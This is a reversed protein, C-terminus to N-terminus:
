PSKPVAQGAVVTAAAHQPATPEAGGEVREAGGSVVADHAAAAFLDEVVAKDRAEASGARVGHAEGEVAHHVATGGPTQVTQAKTLLKIAGSAGDVAGPTTGAGTLAKAETPAAVSQDAPTPSHQELPQTAAPAPSCGSAVTADADSGTKAVLQVEVISTGGPEAQQMAALKAKDFPAADGRDSTQRTRKDADDAHVGSSATGNGAAPSGEIAPLTAEAGLTPTVPKPDDRLQASEEAPRQVPTTVAQDTGEAALAAGATGSASQQLDRTDKSCVLKSQAVGQGKLGGDPAADELAGVKRQTPEPMDMCRLKKPKKPKDAQETSSLGPPLLATMAPVAAHLPSAARAATSGAQTSSPGMHQMAPAPALGEGNPGGAPTPGAQSQGAKTKHKGQALIDAFSQGNALMSWSAPVGASPQQPAAAAGTQHTNAGAFATRDTGGRAFPAHQTGGRAFAAHETGGHAFPTVVFGRRLTPTGPGLVQTAVPEVAEPMHPQVCM